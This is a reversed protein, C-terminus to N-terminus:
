ETENEAAENVVLQVNGAGNSSEKPSSNSFLEETDLSMTVAISVLSFVIALILLVAVVKENM